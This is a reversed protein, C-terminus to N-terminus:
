ASETLNGQTFNNKIQATAVGSGIQMASGAGNLRVGSSNTFIDAFTISSSKYATTNANAINNGSVGLANQSARLGSLATSFTLPM